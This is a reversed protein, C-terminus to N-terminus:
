HARAPPPPHGRRPSEFGRAAQDPRNFSDTEVPGAGLRVGAVAPQAPKEPVAPERSLAHVGTGGRAGAIVREPDYGYHDPEGALVETSTKWIEATILVAVVLILALIGLGALM